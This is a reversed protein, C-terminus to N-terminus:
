FKAVTGSPQLIRQTNLNEFGAELACKHFILNESFAPFIFANKKIFGFFDRLGM